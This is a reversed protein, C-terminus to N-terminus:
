PRKVRNKFFSFARGADDMVRDLLDAAEKPMPQAFPSIGGFFSEYGAKAEANARACDQATRKFQWDTLIAIDRREAESGAPPPDALQLSQLSPDQIYFPAAAAFIPARMAARPSGCVALSLCALLLTSIRKNGLM